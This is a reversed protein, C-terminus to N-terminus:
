KVVFPPPSKALDAEWANLAGQLETVIQPQDFALDTREGPDAELDFLLTNFGGDNILKWRGRRVAKQKSREFRWCLTRSIPDAQRKAMPLLNTGDLSAERPRGVGAASLITPLLDMTIGVQSCTAGAPVQGPWRMIMPVRIGGEWLTFKHHFFPSNDSLRDGGNDNAFIVLTNATLGQQDLAALLKGISADLSEVMAVYDARTGADWNKPSRIDEPKGPVQFPWHPANPAFYLFFPPESEGGRRQKIWRLAEDTLLDTLYGAREVLRDGEWLDPKGNLHKHAYYDIDSELFGFFRDFGHAPPSFAPEDGLHWKGFMATAYGANKLLRPMTGPSPSLGKGKDKPLLVYEIGCRQQYRGTMLAARTPSCVCGNAYFQTFRVGQRALAELNPTKITRSGFPGTDAYGLDDALILLVNPRGARGGQQAPADRKRSRTLGAALSSTIMARRSIRIANAM